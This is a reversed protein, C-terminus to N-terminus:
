KHCDTQYQGILQPKSIEIIAEQAPFVQFTVLLTILKNTSYNKKEEPVCDCTNWNHGDLHAQTRWTVTSFISHSYLLFFSITM